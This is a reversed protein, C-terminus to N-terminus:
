DFIAAIQETDIGEKAVRLDHYTMIIACNWYGVWVVLWVLAFLGGLGQSFWSLMMQVVFAAVYLLGLLLMIGFIKWRYGKTLDFSRLMSAIPGLGEVVCAPVVVGWVVLLFASPIYIAPTLVIAFPGLAAAVVSFVLGGVFIALVLAVSWLISLGLLPMIRAFVRQLVEGVRLPQGRLRQFAGLLLVGQGIMTLSLVVIIVLAIGIGILGPSGSAWGAFFLTMGFVVFAIVMVAYIAILALLFFLINGIFLRWARSLVDGVRFVGSATISDLSM